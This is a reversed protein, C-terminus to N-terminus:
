SLITENECNDNSKQESSELTSFRLFNRKM